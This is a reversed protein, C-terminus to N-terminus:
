RAQEGSQLPHSVVPRYRMGDKGTHSAFLVVERVWLEGLAVGSLADACRTLGREGRPAKSRALTIHPTFQPHDPSLGLPALERTLGQQLGHLADLAGSVGLWLVRPSEIPGFTGSGGIELRHPPHLQAVRGVADGVGPVLADSVEGLFALTLHLSDPRVWRAQPAMRSLRSLLLELADTLSEGLELAIFTRM